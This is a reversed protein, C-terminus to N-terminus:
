RCLIGQFYDGKISEIKFNKDQNLVKYYLENETRAAESFIKIAFERIFNNATM